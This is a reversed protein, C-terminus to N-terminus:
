NNVVDPILALGERIIQAEKKIRVQSVPIGNAKAFQKKAQALISRNEKSQATLELFAIVNAFSQAIDLNDDSAYLALWEGAHRLDLASPAQPKVEGNVIATEVTDRDASAFVDGYSYNKYDLAM